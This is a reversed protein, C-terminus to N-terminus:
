WDVIVYVGHGKTRLRAIGVSHGDCTPSALALMKPYLPTDQDACRTGVATLRTKISRFMSM